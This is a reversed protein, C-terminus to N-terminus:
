RGRVRRLNAERTRREDEEIQLWRSSDHGAGGTHLHVITQGRSPRIPGTPDYVWDLFRKPALLITRLVRRPEM